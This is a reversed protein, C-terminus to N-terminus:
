FNLNKLSFKPISISLIGNSLQSLTNELDLSNTTLFPIIKSLVNLIKNNNFNNSYEEDFNENINLGKKLFDKLSIKLLINIELIQNKDNNEIDKLKYDQKLINESTIGPLFIKIFYFNESDYVCHIFDIKNYEPKKQLDFPNFYLSKLQINEDKSIIINKKNNNNMKFNLNESNVYYNEKNLNLYDFLENEIKMVKFVTINKITERLFHFTKDNILKGAEGYKNALVCHFINANETIFFRTKEDIKKDYVKQFGRYIDKEIFQELTKISHIDKFNHIIAVKKNSPIIDLLYKLQKQESLTLKNVVILIMHSIKILFNQHFNQSLNRDNILNETM